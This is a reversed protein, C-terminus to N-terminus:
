MIGDWPIGTCTCTYYVHIYMYINYTSSVDDICQDPTFYQQLMAFVKPTPKIVIHYHTYSPVTSIRRSERREARVPKDHLLRFCYNNISDNFLHYCSFSQIDCM